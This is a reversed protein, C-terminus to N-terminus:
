TIMSVRHIGETGDCTKLRRPHRGGGRLFM